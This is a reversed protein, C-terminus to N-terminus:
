LRYNSLVKDGWGILADDAFVLPTTEDRTTKGDEHTHRTRYYLVVIQKGNKQYGESDDPKGLRTKVSELSSGLSLNSIEERNEHQKRQWDHDSRRLEDDHIAVVCGSLSVAVVVAACLTKIAHM